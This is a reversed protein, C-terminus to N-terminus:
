EIQPPKTCSKRIYPSTTVKKGVTTMRCVDVTITHTANQWSMRVRRLLTFWEDGKRLQLPAFTGELM